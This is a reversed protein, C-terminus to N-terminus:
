HKFSHFYSNCAYWKVTQKSQGIIQKVEYFLVFCTIKTLNNPPPPRQVDNHKDQTFTIYYSTFVHGDTFSFVSM